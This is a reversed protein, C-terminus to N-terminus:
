VMSSGSSPLSNPKRRGGEFSGCTSIEDIKYHACFIMQIKEFIMHINKKPRMRLRGLNSSVCPNSQPLTVTKALNLRDSLWVVSIWQAWGSQCFSQNDQPDESLLSTLPQVQLDTPRWARALIDSVSFSLVPHYITLAYFRIFGTLRTLRTFRTFCTFRTSSAFRVLGM